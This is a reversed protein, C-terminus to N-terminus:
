GVRVFDGLRMREVLRAARMYVRGSDGKATEVPDFVMPTSGIDGYPNANSVQELEYGDPTQIRISITHRIFGDIGDITVQATTIPAYSYIAGSCAGFDIRGVHIQIVPMTTSEKVTNVFQNRHVMM